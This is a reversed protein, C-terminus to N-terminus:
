HPSGRLADDIKRLVFGPDFPKEIVAFVDLDQLEQRVEAEDMGTVMFVILDATFSNGRIGRLVDIGTLGPLKWDLVILDPHTQQVIQLAHTGSESELVRYGGRELRLRLFSRVDSEDDVLLITKM